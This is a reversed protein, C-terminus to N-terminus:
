VRDAIRKQEDEAGKQRMDKQKFPFTLTV